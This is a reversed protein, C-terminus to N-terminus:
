RLTNQHAPVSGSKESMYVASVNDCYVVTAIFIRCHLERLLNRIWCTEAVVNAVCRYETEISTRSLTHQQKSPWSLLNTGLFVRYGSTSRHTSPCGVGDADSYAVLSTTPSAYLQLGLDLTGQVYRLIRRLVALQPERPDHIFLCIHQVVYM